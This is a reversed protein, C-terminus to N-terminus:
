TESNRKHLQSNRMGANQRDQGDSNFAVVGDTSWQSGSFNACLALGAQSADHGPDYGKSQSSRHQSHDLELMNALDVGTQGTHVQKPVLEVKDEDNDDKEEDGKDNQDNEVADNGSM